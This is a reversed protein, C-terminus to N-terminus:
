LDIVLTLEGEVDVPQSVKGYARENWALFAKLAVNSDKANLFSLWM